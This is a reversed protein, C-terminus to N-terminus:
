QLNSANISETPPTGDTSTTASIKLIAALQEGFEWYLGHTYQYNARAFEISMKSMLTNLNSRVAETDNTNYPSQSVWSNLVKLDEKSRKCKKLYKTPMKQIFLVLKELGEVVNDVAKTKILAYAQDIENAFTKQDQICAALNDVNQKDTLGVILGASIGAVKQSLQKIKRQMIEEQVEPDELMMEYM